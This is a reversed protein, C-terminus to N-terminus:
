EIRQLALPEGMKALVGGLPRPLFSAWGSAILAIGWQLPRQPKHDNCQGGAHGIRLQDDGAAARLPSRATTQHNGTREVNLEALGVLHMVVTDLDDITVPKSAPDGFNVTESRAKPPVPLRHWQEDMPLAM